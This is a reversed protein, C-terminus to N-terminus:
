DTLRGLHGRPSYCGSACQSDCSAPFRTARDGGGFAGSRARGGQFHSGGGSMPLHHALSAHAHRAHAHPCLLDSALAARGGGERPRRCEHVPLSHSERERGSSQRSVKTRLLDGTVREPDLSLVQKFGFSARIEPVQQEPLHAMGDHIPATPIYWCTASQPDPGILTSLASKLAPTTPGNSCLFLKM